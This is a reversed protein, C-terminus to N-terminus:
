KTIENKKWIRKKWQIGNYSGKYQLIICRFFSKQAWSVIIIFIIIKKYSIAPEIM